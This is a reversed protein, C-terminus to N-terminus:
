MWHLSVHFLPLAHLFIHMIIDVFKALVNTQFCPCSTLNHRWLCRVGFVFSWRIVRFWFGGHFNEAYAVPCLVGSGNQGFHYCEFIGEGKVYYAIKWTQSRWKHYFNLCMSSLPPCLVARSPMKHPGCPLWVYMSLVYKSNINFYNWRNSWFERSKRGCTENSVM